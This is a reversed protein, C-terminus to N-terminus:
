CTISMGCVRRCAAKTEFTPSTSATLIQMYSSQNSHVSHNRITYYFISETSMQFCNNIHM